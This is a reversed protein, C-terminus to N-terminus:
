SFELMENVGLVVDFDKLFRDCKQIKGRGDAGAGKLACKNINWMLFLYPISHSINEVTCYLCQLLNSFIFFVSMEPRGRHSYVELIDSGRVCYLNETHRTEEFLFNFWLSICLDWVGGKLLCGRISIMISVWVSSDHAETSPLPKLTCGSRPCVM